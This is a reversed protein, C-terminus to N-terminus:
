VNSLAMQKRIRTVKAHLSTDRKLQLGMRLNAPSVASKKIRFRRGIERLPQAAYIHCFYLKVKRALASDAEFIRDVAQEIKGAPVGAAFVRWRCDFRTFHTSRVRKNEKKM